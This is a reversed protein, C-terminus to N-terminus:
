SALWALASERDSFIKIAIKPNNNLTQFMRAFGMQAENGAVIASKFPNSFKITRRLGALSMIEDFGLQMEAVATLDTIRDPTVAHKAEEEAMLAAGDMLDKGSISGSLTIWFIPDKYEVTFAM